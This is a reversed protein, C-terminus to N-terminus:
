EQFEGFSYLGRVDFFTVYFFVSLIKKKKIQIKKYICIRDPRFCSFNTRIWHFFM